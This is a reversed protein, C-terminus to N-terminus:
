WQQTYAAWIVGVSLLIWNVVLICCAMQTQAKLDAERKDSGHLPAQCENLERRNELVVGLASRAVELYERANDQAEKTLEGLKTILSRQSLIVEGPEKLSQKDHASVLKQIKTTEQLLQWHEKRLDQMALALDQPPPATYPLSLTNAGYSVSNPAGKSTRQESPRHKASRHIHILPM